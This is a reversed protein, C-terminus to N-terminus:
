EDQDGARTLMRNVQVLAGYLANLRGIERERIKRFSIDRISAFHRPKGDLEVIISNIEVAFSKGDRRRHETEYVSQKTQSRGQADHKFRKAGEPSCLDSFTLARLEALNCGYTECARENADLIRWNDTDTILFSDSACRMVLALREECAKREQEAKSEALLADTAHRKWVFGAAFALIGIFACLVLYAEGELPAPVGAHRAISLMLWSGGLSIVLLAGCRVVWKPLHVPTSEKNM